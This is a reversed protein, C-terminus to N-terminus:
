FKYNLRLGYMQPYTLYETRLFGDAITGSSADTANREDAINRIFATVSWKESESTWAAQADFRGWSELMGNVRNYPDTYMEDVWTYFGSFMLSGNGSLPVWYVAQFNFKNEPARNLKNGSLDVVPQELTAKDITTFDSYEANNYAYSGSLRFRESLLWTFQAEFGAVDASAANTFETGQAGTEPDLFSQVVQLDSYDYYYAALEVLLSDNALSGKYGIEYSILTEEDFSDVGPAITGLNFGGSRYGTSISGYVFGGNELTYDLRILGSLNNWDMKSQAIDGTNLPYAISNGIAKHTESEIVGYDLVGDGTVDGIPIAGFDESMPVMGWVVESGDKEDYSYRAGITLSLTDSFDYDIQGYAAYSESELNTDFWFVRNKPDGQYDPFRFGGLVFESM